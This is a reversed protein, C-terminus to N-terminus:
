YTIKIPLNMAEEVWYKVKNLSPVRRVLHKENNTVLMAKHLNEPNRRRLEKVTDVGAQEL